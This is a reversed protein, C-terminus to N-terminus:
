GLQVLRAGAAVKILLSITLFALSAAFWMDRVSGAAARDKMRNVLCAGAARGVPNELADVVKCLRRIRQNLMGSRLVAIAACAASLLALCESIFDLQEGMIM